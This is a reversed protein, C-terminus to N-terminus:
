AHAPGAHDALMMALEDDQLAFPSEAGARGATRLSRHVLYAANPAHLDEPVRQGNSVYQLALRHRIVVDLVQGPRAAEDIKSIICGAFDSPEPKAAGYAAVVEELTEAQVTASLLLLRKVDPQALWHTHEAVRQDRQGMGVTDILVLHKGALTDLTSRLEAADTVTHVNVGLIKAYIRLQDQAGIRYSDTTILALARAGYRVACRAALKATTTTKGVGTPGVLAYIGGRTVLDADADACRLNRSIVGVLWERAQAASYDDPLQQTIQRALAASFGSALLDRTFQARLPQRRVADSWALQAFQGEILGRMAQMEDMVRRNFGSEDAAAAVPRPAPAAFVSAPPRQRPPSEPQASGDPRPPEWRRPEDAAAAATAAAAPEATARRQLAAPAADIAAFAEAAVATIEIGNATPRNSVIMADPGLETRVQELVARSTQGFFKFLKM